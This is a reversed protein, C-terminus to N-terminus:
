LFSLILNKSLNESISRNENWVLVCCSKSFHKDSLYADVNWLCEGQQQFSARQQLHNRLFSFPQQWITLMLITPRQCCQLWQLYFLRYNFCFTNKFLSQSTQCSILWKAHTEGFGSFTLAWTGRTPGSLTSQCCKCKIERVNLIEVSARADDVQGYKTKQVKTFNFQRFSSLILM